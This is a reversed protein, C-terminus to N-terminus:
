GHQADLHASVEFTDVVIRIWNGDYRPAPHSVAVYGPLNMDLSRVAPIRAASVIAGLSPARNIPYGVKKQAIQKIVQTRILAHEDTRRVAESRKYCIVSRTNYWIMIKDFTTTEGIFSGRRVRLRGSPTASDRTRSGARAEETTVVRSLEVDEGQEGRERSVSIERSYLLPM